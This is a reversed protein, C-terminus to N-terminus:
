PAPQTVQDTHSGRDHGHGYAVPSSPVTIDTLPTAAQLLAPFGTTEEGKPADAGSYEGASKLVATLRGVKTMAEIRVPIRQKNDSLWIHMDGAGKLTREENDKRAIVVPRIVLTDVPAGDLDLREKGTVTADVRFFKDSDFVEYSVTSGVALPQTRLFYFGSLFDWVIDPAEHERTTGNKHNVSTITRDKRSFLAERNSSRSGAEHIARFSVPRGDHLISEARGDVRYLASVLGASRVRTTIRSEGANSSCALTVFGASLGHLRLEFQLEENRPGAAAADGSRPDPATEGTGEEPSPVTPRTEATPTSEFLLIEGVDFEDSQEADTLSGQAEPSPDDRLTEPVPVHTTEEAPANKWHGSPSLSSRTGTMGRLATAVGQGTHDFLSVALTGVAPLSSLPSGPMDSLGWLALCHLLISLFASPLGKRPTPPNGSIFGRMQRGSAHCLSQGKTAVAPVDM